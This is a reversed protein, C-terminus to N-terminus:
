SEKSIIRKGIAYFHHHDSNLKMKLIRPNKHQPKSKPAKTLNKPIQIDPHNLPQPSTKQPGKTLNPPAGADSAIESAVHHNRAVKPQFSLSFFFSM